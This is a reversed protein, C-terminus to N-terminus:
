NTKDLKDIQYTLIRTLGEQDISGNKFFLIFYFYNFINIKINYKKFTYIHLLITIWIM